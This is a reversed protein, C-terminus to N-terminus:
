SHPCALTRVAEKAKLREEAEQIARERAALGEDLVQSRSGTSGRRESRDDRGGMSVRSSRGDDADAFVKQWTERRQNQVPDLTEVPQQSQAEPQRQRSREQPTPSGARSRPQSRSRRSASRPPGIPRGNYDYQRGEDSLAWATPIGARSRGVSRGRSHTSRMSRADMDISDDADRRRAASRGRRSPTRGTSGTTATPQRGRSSTSAALAPKSSPGDDQSGRRRRRQSVLAAATKLADSLQQKDGTAEAQRIMASLAAHFTSQTTNPHLLTDLDPTMLEFSNVNDAGYRQELDHLQQASSQNRSQINPRAYRQWPELDKDWTSRASSPQGSKGQSDSPGGRGRSRSRGAAAAISSQTVGDALAQIGKARPSRASARGRSPSRLARDLEVPNEQREGSRLDGNGYSDKGGTWTTQGAQDLPRGASAVDKLWTSGDMISRGTTSDRLLRPSSSRLTATHGNTGADGGNEVAIPRALTETGHLGLDQRWWELGVDGAARAVFARQAAAPTAPPELQRPPFHMVGLEGGGPHVAGAGVVGDVRGGNSLVAQFILDWGGHM